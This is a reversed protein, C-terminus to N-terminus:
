TVACVGSADGTADSAADQGSGSQWASLSAYTTGNLAHRMGNAFAPFHNNNGTYIVTGGSRGIEFGTDTADGDFTCGNVTLAGDQMFVHKKWGTDTSQIFFDCNTLTVSVNTRQHSDVIGRQTRGECFTTNEVVMVTDDSNPQVLNGDNASGKVQCRRITVDKTFFGGFDCDVAICDEVIMATADDGGLWSNCNEMRCNAILATGLTQGAGGSTHYGFATMRQRAGASNAMTVTDFTVDLGDGAPDFAVVLSTNEYNFHADKVTTNKVLGGGAVYANHKGGYLAECDEIRGNRGTIVLSGDPHTQMQAAVGEIVCNTGTLRVGYQRASCSYSKGNSGPNLSDGPHVYVTQALAQGDTGTHSAVHYSGATTQCLAVSAVYQLQLADELVNIWHDGGGTISVVAAEYVNAHTANQSFAGPAIADDARILPRAGTGYAGITLTNLASVATEFFVAGRKLGIKEGVTARSLAEAITQLAAGESDGTNLDDGLVPDVYYTFAPPTAPIDAGGGQPRTLGIDIGLM